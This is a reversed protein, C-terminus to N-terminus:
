VQGGGLVSKCSCKQKFVKALVSKCAKCKAKWEGKTNQFRDFHKWAQSRLKTLMELIKCKYNRKWNLPKRHSQQIQHSQQLPTPQHKLGH